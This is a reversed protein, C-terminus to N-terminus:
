KHCMDTDNKRANINVKININIFGNKYLRVLKKYLYLLRKKFRNTKYSKETKKMDFHKNVVQIRIVVM